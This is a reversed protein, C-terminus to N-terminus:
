QLATDVARPLRSPVSGASNKEVRPGPDPLSLPLVVCWRTPKSPPPEPCTVAEVMARSDGVCPLDGNPM